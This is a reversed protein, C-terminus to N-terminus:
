KRPYIRDAITDRHFASHQRVEAWGGAVTAPQSAAAARETALDQWSNYRTLTLFTWDSGELHQLVVNGTQIKADAAGPARLAKELQDRHGPVTRQVGVIYIMNAANGSGGIGMQATFDTWSPGNTFTDMHWASLDWAPNAPIPAASVVPKAGLHEIVAYDWDDGEQHRLVVFHDPMPATKDPVMLADGLATAQGPAAKTFHVHYVDTGTTAPPQSQPSAAVAGVIASLVVVLAGFSRM